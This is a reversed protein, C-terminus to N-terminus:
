PRDRSRVRLVLLYGFLYAFCGTVLLFFTLALWAAASAGASDRWSDVVLFILAAFCLTTFVFVLGVTFSSWEATYIAYSERFSLRTDSFPLGSVLKRLEYYYWGLWLPCVVAYILIAYLTWTTVVGAGIGLAFMAPWHFGVCKRIKDELPKDPIVRGRGLAGWPYFVTRNAKDKKFCCNTLGEM